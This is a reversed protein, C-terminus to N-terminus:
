VRIRVETAGRVDDISVEGPLAFAIRGPRATRVHREEVSVTTQVRTDPGRVEVPEGGQLFPVDRGGTECEVIVWNGVMKRMVAITLVMEIPATRDADNQVHTFEVGGTLVALWNYALALIAFGLFGAAFGVFPLLAVFGSEIRQSSDVAVLVIFAALTSGLGSLAAGHLGLSVPNITALRAM